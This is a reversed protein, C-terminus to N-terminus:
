HEKAQNGPVKEILKGNQKQRSRIAQRKGSPQEDEQNVTRCTDQRNVKQQQYKYIFYM